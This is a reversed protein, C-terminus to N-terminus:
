VGQIQSLPVYEAPLQKRSLSQKLPYSYHLLHYPIRSQLMGSQCVAFDAFSFQQRVRSLCPEPMVVLLVASTKQTPNWLDWTAWVSGLLHTANWEPWPVWLKLLGYSLLVSYRWLEEQWSWTRLWSRLRVPLQGAYECLAAWLWWQWTQCMWRGRGLCALICFHTLYYGEEATVAPDIIVWFAIHM